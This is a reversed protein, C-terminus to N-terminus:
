NDPIAKLDDVTWSDVKDATAQRIAKVQEPTVNPAKNGWSNRIFSLVHAVDEDTLVDRWPNMVNNYPQGKVEMPGQAGHLVIRILRDPKPALVWESGVLPPFQGAMGQGGPQHCADCKAKNRYVAEGKEMVEADGSKIHMRDIENYSTFPHFVQHPFAGSKGMLDAGNEMLHVDGWYLIVVLLAIILVPMPGRAAIPEANESAPVAPSTSSTVAFPKEVRAEPRPAGGSSKNKKSM